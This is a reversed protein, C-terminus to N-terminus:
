LQNMAFAVLVEHRRRIAAVDWVLNCTSDKTAFHSVLEGQSLLASRSTYHPIRSTFGGSGVLYTDLVLNGLRHLCVEEFPRAEDDTQDWKVLRKLNPNAPNQPEIHDREYRTAHREPSVLTTWSLRSM